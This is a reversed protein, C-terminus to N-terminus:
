KKTQKEFAEAGLRLIEDHLSAALEPQIRTTIPDNAWNGETPAAGYKEAMAEAWWHKLQRHGFEPAVDFQSGVWAVIRKDVAPDGIEFGRYAVTFPNRLNEAALLTNRVLMGFRREDVALLKSAEKLAYEDGACPVLSAALDIFKQPDAAKDTFSDLPSRSKIVEEIKKEIMPLVLSSRNLVLVDIADDDVGVLGQDLRSNVYSVQDAESMRLIRNALSEQRPAPQQQAAGLTASVAALALLLLSRSRTDM